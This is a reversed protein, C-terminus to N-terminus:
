HDYAKPVFAPEADGRPSLSHGILKTVNVQAREVLELQRGPAQALHLAWDSWAEIFAHPSVGASMYAVAARSARDLNEHPHAAKPAVQPQKPGVQLQSAPAVKAPRQVQEANRAPAKPQTRKTM